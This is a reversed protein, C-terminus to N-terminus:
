STLSRKLESFPCPSFNEVKTTSGVVSLMGTHFLEEPLSFDDGGNPGRAFALCHNLGEYGFTYVYKPEVHSVGFVVPHTLDSGSNPLDSQVKVSFRCDHHVDLSRFDSGTEQGFRNLKSLTLHNLQTM